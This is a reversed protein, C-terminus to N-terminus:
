NAMKITLLFTATAISGWDEPFGLRYARTRGGRGWGLRFGIWSPCTLLFAIGDVFLDGAADVTVFYIKYLHNDGIQAGINDRPAYKRVEGPLSGSDLINTVYTNGKKDVAVDLPFGNSDNM